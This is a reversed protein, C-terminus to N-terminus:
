KGPVGGYRRVIEILGDLDVPKKVFHSMGPLDPKDAVGSVVCVPISALTDERAKEALFEMGNM